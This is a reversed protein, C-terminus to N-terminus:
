RYTRYRHGGLAEGSVQDTVGREQALVVRDLLRESADVVPLAPMGAELVAVAASRMPQEVTLLPVTRLIGAGFTQPSM